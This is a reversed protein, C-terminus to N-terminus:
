GGAAKGEEGKQAGEEEAIRISRGPLSRGSAARTEKEKRSEKEKEERAKTKKVKKAEKEELIQKDRAPKDAKKQAKAIKTVTAAKEKEVRNLIYSRNTLIQARRWNYRLRDRNRFNDIRNLGTQM